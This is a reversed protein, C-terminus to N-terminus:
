EYYRLKKKPIKVVKLLVKEDTMSICLCYIIIDTVINLLSKRHHAWPCVITGLDLLFLENQNTSSCYIIITGQM